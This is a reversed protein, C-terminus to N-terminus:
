GKKNRVVGWKFLDMIEEATFDVWFTSSIKSTTGDNLIETICLCERDDSKRKVKGVSLVFVIFGNPYCFLKGQLSQLLVVDEATLGLSPEEAQFEKM